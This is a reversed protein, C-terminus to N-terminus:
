FIFQKTPIGQKIILRSRKMIEHSVCISQQEMSPKRGAGSPLRWSSKKTLSLSDTPLPCHQDQQASSLNAPVHKSQEETPLHSQQRNLSVLFALITTM